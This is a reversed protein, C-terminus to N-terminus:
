PTFYYKIQQIRGKRAFVDRSVGYPLTNGPFEEEKGKGPLVSIFERDGSIYIVPVQCFTFALQGPELVIERENGDPGYFRIRGNADPEVQTASAGSGDQLDTVQSGSTPADYVDLPEAASFEALLYGTDSTPSGAGDLLTDTTQARAVLVDASGAAYLYRAM